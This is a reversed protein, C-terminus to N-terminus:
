GNQAGCLSTRRLSAHRAEVNTIETRALTAIAALCLKADASVASGFHRRFDAAFPDLVCAPDRALADDHGAGEGEGAGLARFLRYPYCSRAHLLM